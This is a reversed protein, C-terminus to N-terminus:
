KRRKMFGLGILIGIALVGVLAYILSNSDISKTAPTKSVEYSKGNSSDEGKDEVDSDGSLSYSSVGVNPNLGKSPSNYNNSSSFISNTNASNNNPKKPYKNISNGDNGNSIGNNDIPVAPIKDPLARIYSLVNIGEDDSKGSIIKNYDDRTIPKTVEFSLTPLSVINESSYDGKVFRMWEAYEDAGDKFIPYGFKIITATGTNTESNWRIIIDSDATWLAGANVDSNSYALNYYNGMSPSVGLLRSLMDDKCYTYTSVLVYSENEGLPLDDFIKDALLVGPSSGTCVHNHFLWGMLADYPPDYRLSRNQINYQQSCEYLQGTTSNYKLSYTVSNYIDSTNLWYFEIILDKWLATHVPLLNGRSLRAGFIEEIGDFVMSTATDNIRVFGAGTLVYFNSMDKEITVNINKFYDVAKLSADVGIQKLQSDSLHVNNFNGTEMEADPLNLSNIYDLDLGRATINSASWLQNGILQNKQELTLDKYAAEITVLSEPNSMLTSILWNQYILDETVSNDPNINPYLSKFTNKIKAEDYSMIILLGTNSSSNWRIFGNMNKNEMTDFGIYSMKGQTIDLTWTFADDDSGGPVGLVYYATNELPQAGTEGRPPYYKILTTVMAQGSILGTCVHGHYSALTLIDSYLGANWANAISVYTYADDAGILGKLKKWQNTTLGVGGIGTYVPTTSANQYFAMTLRNGKKIFFAFNTPDTRIAHLTLLNGKGYTIHGDAANYIGDLANETTIDNIRTMGATTIVLVDDASSFNLLRDASKTIDYGMKYIDTAKLNFITTKNSQSNITINQIQTIYGPASVSVSCEAGDNLKNMTIRYNNSHIINKTYNMNNNCHSISIEPNIEDGYEYNIKLDIDTSSEDSIEKICEDNNHNLELNIDTSNEASVANIFIFIVLVSIILLKKNM